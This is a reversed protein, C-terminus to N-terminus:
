LSLSVVAAQFIHTILHTESAGHVGVGVHDGGDGTRDVVGVHDDGGGAVFGDDDPVEGLLVLGVTDGVAAEPAVGVEDFVDDEGGVTLESKGTGPVALETEPIEGGTGGSAPEDTVGLVNEGDSERDVVTLDNRSGTVTSDLEPVGETLALVGNLITISVGIPNATNPETGARTLGGNDRRRPILSDLNPIQAVTLQPRSQGAVFPINVGDRNRRITRKARASPFIPHNQEPIQRLPFLEVRKFRTRDNM